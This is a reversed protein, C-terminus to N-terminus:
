EFRLSDIIARAELEFDKARQDLNNHSNGYKLYVYVVQELAEDYGLCRVGTGDLRIEGTDIKALFDFDFVLCEDWGLPNDSYAQLSSNTTLIKQGDAPEINTSDQEMAVLMGRLYGNPNTLYDSKTAGFAELFQNLTLTDLVLSINRTGGDNAIFSCAGYNQSQPTLPSTACSSPVDIVIGAGSKASLSISNASIQAPLM